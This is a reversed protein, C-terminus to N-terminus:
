RNIGITTMKITSVKTYLVKNTGTGSMFNTLEKHQHLPAWNTKNDELNVQMFDQQMAYKQTATWLKQKEEFM